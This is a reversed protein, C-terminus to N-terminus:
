MYTVLQMNVHVFLGGGGAIQTLFNEEACPM